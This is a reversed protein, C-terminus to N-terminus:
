GLLTKSHVYGSQLKNLSELDSDKLGPAGTALGDKRQLTNKMGLIAEATRKSESQRQDNIRSRFSKTQAPTQGGIQSAADDIQKLLDM